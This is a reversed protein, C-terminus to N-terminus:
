RNYWDHGFEVGEPLTIHTLKPCPDFCHDGVKKLGDPVFVSELSLCGSFAANGLVRTTEPLTVYELSRCGDFAFDGVRVLYRPLDVYRLNVCGKFASAPIVKMHDPLTIDALQTNGTFMGSRFGTVPFTEGQYTVEDPISISGSFADVYQEPTVGKAGLFIAEGKRYDIHCYSGDDTEVDVPERKDHAIEKWGSPFNKVQKWNVIRNLSAPTGPLNRSTDIRVAQNGFDISEIGDLKSIATVDVEPAGLFTLGSVKRYEFASDGIRTVSGPIRLTGWDGGLERYPSFRFAYSGIEELRSPLILDKIPLHQFAWADIIRLSLPLYLDVPTTREKARGADDYDFFNSFAYKGIRTIGEGIEIVNISKWVKPDRWDRSKDCRTDPIMGQGYVRLTDNSVDWSITDTLKKPKAGVPVALLAVACFAVCKTAFTRLNIM